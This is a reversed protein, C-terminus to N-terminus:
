AARGRTEGPQPAPTRPRRPDRAAQPNLKPLKGTVALTLADRQESTAGLHFRIWLDGNKIRASQIGPLQLLAKVNM